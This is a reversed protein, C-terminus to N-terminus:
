QSLNITFSVDLRHEVYGEAYNEKKSKRRNCCYILIGLVLLGAIVGGIIGITTGIDM